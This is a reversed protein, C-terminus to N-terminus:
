GWGRSGEGPYLYDSAPITRLVKDEIKFWAYTEFNPSSAKRNDPAILPFFVVPKSPFPSPAQSGKMIFHLAGSFLLQRNSPPNVNSSVVFLAPTQSIREFRNGDDICIFVFIGPPCVAITRILPWSQPQNFRLTSIILPRPNYFDSSDMETWKM